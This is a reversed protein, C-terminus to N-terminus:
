NVRQLLEYEVSLNSVQGNTGKYWPQLKLETASVSIVKFYQWYTSGQLTIQGNSYTSSYTKVGKDTQAADNGFDFSFSNDSITYTDNFEYAAMDNNTANGVDKRFTLKWKGNITPESTKSEDKKCGVMAAALFLILLTNKM